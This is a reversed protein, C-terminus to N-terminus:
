RRKLLDYCSGLGLIQFVTSGIETFFEELASIQAKALSSKKVLWGKLVADEKVNSKALSSVCRGDNRTAM